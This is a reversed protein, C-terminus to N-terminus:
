LPLLNDGVIDTRDSKHAEAWGPDSIGYHSMKSFMMEMEMQGHGDLKHFAKKLISLSHASLWKRTARSAESERVGPGADHFQHYRDMVHECIDDISLVPKTETIVDGFSNLYTFTLHGDSVKAKGGNMMEPFNM